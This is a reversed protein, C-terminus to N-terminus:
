INLFNQKNESYRIFQVPSCRANMTSANKLLLSDTVAVCLANRKCKLSLLCSGRSVLVSTNTCKSTCEYEYVLPNDRKLRLHLRFARQTATVSENSKFFAEVNFARHEGTWNILYESFLYFKKFIYICKPTFLIFHCKLYM